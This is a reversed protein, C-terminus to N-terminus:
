KQNKDMWAKTKIHKTRSFKQKHEKNCEETEIIIVNEQMSETATYHDINPLVTTLGYAGILWMVEEM